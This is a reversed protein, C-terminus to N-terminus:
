PPSVGSLKGFQGKIFKFLPDTMGGGMYRGYMKSLRENTVTEYPGVRMFYKLFGRMKPKNKLMWNDWKEGMTRQRKRFRKYTAFRVKKSKKEDLGYRKEVENRIKDEVERVGILEKVYKNLWRHKAEIELLTLLIVNQSVLYPTILCNWDDIEEKGGEMKFIPSVVEIDYLAYYYRDHSLPPNSEYDHRTDGAYWKAKLKDVILVDDKVLNEKEMLEKADDETKVIRVEYHDEIDPIARKVFDDYPDIEGSVFGPKGIEEPTFMKWMLLRVAYWANPKAWPAIAMTLLQSPEVETGEKLM